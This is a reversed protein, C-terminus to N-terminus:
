ESSTHSAIWLPKNMLLITTDIIELSILYANSTRAYRSYCRYAQYDAFNADLEYWYSRCLLVNLICSSSLGAFWKFIISVKDVPTFWLPTKTITGSLLYNVHRVNVNIVIGLVLQLGDPIVYSSFERKYSLRHNETVYNMKINSSIGNMSTPWKEYVINAFFYRGM